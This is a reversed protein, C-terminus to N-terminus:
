NASDTLMQVESEDPHLNSAEIHILKDRTTQNFNAQPSRIIYQSQKM